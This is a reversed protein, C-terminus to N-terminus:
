AKSNMLSTIQQSSIGSIQNYDLMALQNKTFASLQKTTLGAMQNASFHAIDQSTLIKIQNVSLKTVDTTNNIISAKPAKLFTKQTTTLSALEDSTLTYVQQPTLAKLQTNTLWGMHDLHIEDLSALVEPKVSKIQSESLSWGSNNGSESNAQVATLFSIQANTLPCNGGSQGRSFINTSLSSITAPALYKLKDIPLQTYKSTPSFEAGKIQYWQIGSVAEATLESPHADTNRANSLLADLQSDHLNRTQQASISKVADASLATLQDNTLVGINARVGLMFNKGLSPLKAVDIEALQSSTFGTWAAQSLNSLQSATFSKKQDNTLSVVQSATLQSVQANTLGTIQDTKLNYIASINLTSIVNPNLYKIKDADIGTINLGHIGGAASASIASFNSTTNSPNSLLANLQVDSMIMVQSMTLKSVQSNTFAKIQDTSLNHIASSNLAFILNSNINKINASTIGQVNTGNIGSLADATLESPSGVSNRTNGLIADLQLGNLRNINKGQISSVVEKNLLKLNENSLYGLNGDGRGLVFNKGLASIQDLNLQSIFNASFGDWAQLSVKSLQAGTFYSQQTSTLMSIEGATLSPILDPSIKQLVSKIQLNTQSPSGGFLARQLASANTTVVPNAKVIPASSVATPM